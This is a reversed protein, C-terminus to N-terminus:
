FALRQLTFGQAELLALVGQEGSLHLAGFAVLLPGRAAEAEIVAIWARNRRIMLADEMMAFDRTVADPDAGPLALTQLRLFEWLHRSNEAFYAEALTISMDAAAPEMALATQVMTLQDAQSMGEFLGFLTDYPELAKVPVGRAVAAEIILGDLGGRASIRDMDCAPIGLLMSLYWPRFKAAMFPPIGRDRMAQSLAQWDPASLLEPLTAGDTILMIGPERAVREALAAEEAPGAEVLLTAAEAILPDIRALTAAHRPDDLHYTGVLHVTLTGRTARWLNGQAYPALLAARDLAAATEPPLAAILDTGACDAMAHGPLIMCAVLALARLM